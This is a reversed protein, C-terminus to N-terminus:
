NNFPSNDINVDIDTNQSYNMDKFLLVLYVTISVLVFLKIYSIYNNKKIFICRDIFFLLVAILGSIIALFINHESRNHPKSNIDGCFTFTIFVSM